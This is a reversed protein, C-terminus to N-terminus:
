INRDTGAHPGGGRGVESFLKLSTVRRYVESANGLRIALEVGYALQTVKDGVM